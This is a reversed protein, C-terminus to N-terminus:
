VKLCSTATAFTGIGDLGQRNSCLVFKYLWDYRQSPPSHLQVCLQQVNGACETPGHKCAYTGDEQLMNYFRCQHMYVLPTSRTTCMAWWPVRAPRQQLARRQLGKGMVCATVCCSTVENSLLGLSWCDLHHVAHWQFGMVGCCMVGGLTQIGRLQCPTAVRGTQRWHLAHQLVTHGQARAPCPGACDRCVACGQM